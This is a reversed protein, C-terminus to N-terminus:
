YDTADQPVHLVGMVSTWMEVVDRGGLNFPYLLFKSLTTSLCHFDTLVHSPRYPCPTFFRVVIANVYYCHFMFESVNYM